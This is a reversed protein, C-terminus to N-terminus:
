EPQLFFILAGGGSMILTDNVEVSGVKTGLLSFVDGTADIKGIKKGFVNFLNGGSDVKGIIRDLRNYVIGKLDARGIKKGANNLVEGNAAVKGVIRGNRNIVKLFPEVSESLNFYLLTVITLSLSIFILRAKPCCTVHKV